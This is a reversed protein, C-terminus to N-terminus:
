FLSSVEADSIEELDNATLFGMDNELQSLKTISGLTGSGINQYVQAIAEDVYSQTTFGQSYIWSQTLYEDILVDMSSLNVTYICVNRAGLKTIYKYDDDSEILITVSKSPVYITDMNGGIKYQGNISYCGDELDFLCIPDSIDGYKNVIPLDQLDNYSTIVENSDDIEKFVPALIGNILLYVAGNHIYFTNSQINETPLEEVTIISTQNFGKIEQMQLNKDIFVLTNLDKCFVYSPYKLVGSDVYQQIKGYSAVAFIPINSNAM